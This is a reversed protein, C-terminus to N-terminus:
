AERQTSRGISGGIDSCGDSRQKLSINNDKDVAITQTEALNVSQNAQVSTPVVLNVSNEM